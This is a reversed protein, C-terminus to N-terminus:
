YENNSKKLFSGTIMSIIFGLFAFWLITSFIGFFSKGKSPTDNLQQEIAERSGFMEGWELLMTVQFDPDVYTDYIFSSISYIIGIVVMMTIGILLAEKINLYGDNKKKWKKIFITILIIELIFCILFTSYYIIPNPSLIKPVTDIVVRATGALIASPLVFEKIIKKSNSEM